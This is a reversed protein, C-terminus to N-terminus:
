KGILSVTFSNNKLLESLAMEVQNTFHDLLEMLEIQSMTKKYKAIRLGYDSRIEDLYYVDNISLYNPHFKDHLEVVKNYIRDVYRIYHSVDPVKMSHAGRSGEYTLKYLEIYLQVIERVIKEENEDM